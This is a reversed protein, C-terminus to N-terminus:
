YIRDNDDSEGEIPIPEDPISQPGGLVLNFTVKEQEPPSDPQTFMGLHQGLLELARNAAALNQRKSDEPNISQEVVRKLNRIVYDARINNRESREQFAEQIAKAIHPKRLNDAGTRYATKLSYGAAKAAKTANMDILYEEIFRKQKLTLKTTTV